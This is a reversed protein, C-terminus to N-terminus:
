DYMEVVEFIRDFVNPNKRLAASATAKTWYRQCRRRTVVIFTDVISSRNEMLDFGKTSKRGAASRAVGNSKAREIIIHAEWITIPKGGPAIVTV